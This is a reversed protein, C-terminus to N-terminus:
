WTFYFLICTDSWICLLHMYRLLMLWTLSNSYKGKWISIPPNWTGYASFYPCSSDLSPAHLRCVYCLGEKTRLTFLSHICYIMKQKNGNGLHQERSYLLSERGSGRGMRQGEVNSYTLGQVGRTDSRRWCLGGSEGRQKDREFKTDGVGSQTMSKM